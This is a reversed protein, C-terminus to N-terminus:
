SHFALAAGTLVALGAIAQLATARVDNQLKLRADALEVRDREPLRALTDAPLPPALRRPLLLVWAVLLAGLGGLGLSLLAVVPGVAATLGYLVAFITLGLLVRRGPDPLRDRVQAKTVLTVAVAAALPWAWAADKLLRGSADIRDNVGGENIYEVLLLAFM